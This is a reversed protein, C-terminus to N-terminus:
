FKRMWSGFILRNFSVFIPLFAALTYFFYWGSFLKFCNTTLGVILVKLILAIAFIFSISLINQYLRVKLFQIGIPLLTYVAAYIGLSIPNLLDITLGLLFGFVLVFNLSENYAVFFLLIFLLDPAPQGVNMVLLMFLYTVVILFLIIM